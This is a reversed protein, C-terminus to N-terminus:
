LWNLSFLCHESVDSYVIWVGSFWGFSLICCGEFRWSDSTRHCLGHRLLVSGEM